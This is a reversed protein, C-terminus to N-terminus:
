GIRARKADQARRKRSSAATARASPETVLILRTAAVDMVYWSKCDDCTALLRDPLDPDPMHVALPSTCCPCPIESLPEESEPDITFRFSKAAMQEDGAPNAAVFADTRIWHERVAHIPTLRDNGPRLAVSAVCRM